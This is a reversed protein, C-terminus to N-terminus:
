IGTSQLDYVINEGEIYGLEAMGAKFGDVADVAFSLGSLIGVHYVKAEEKKCCGSLLLALVTMLTLITWPNVVRNQFFKGAMM